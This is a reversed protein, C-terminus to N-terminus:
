QLSRTSPRWANFWSCCFNACVSCCIFSLMALVRDRHCCRFTCRFVVDELRKYLYFSIIFSMEIICLIREITNARNYERVIM